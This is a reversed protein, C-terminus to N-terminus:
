LESLAKRIKRQLLHVFFTQDYVKKSECSRLDTESIQCIPFCCSTQRRFRYRFFHTLVFHRFFFFFFSFARVDKGEILRKAKNEWEQKEAADKKRNATDLYMEFLATYLDVKDGEKLNEMQILTELFSIFQRPHDVFMSFATRPKPIQYDPVPPSSESGASEQVGATSSSKGTGINIYPLPIFAALSQVTSAPQTPSEAPPEVETKPRYKGTYYDTFLETSQEPCNALLVRAYKM